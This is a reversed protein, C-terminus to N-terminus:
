TKKVREEALLGYYCADCIGQNNIDAQRLTGEYKMGCKKMVGGSHPNRPDHYAVIKNVGVEDFMFDIVAGLAETMLGKHWYARGLCYGTEATGVREDLKTISISGVPEAPVENLTIVWNYYDPKEYSEVWDKLVNETVSINGHPPWTMFRTVEEDNCWNAFMAPADEPTFRRLVLRDTKLTVTGKHEM